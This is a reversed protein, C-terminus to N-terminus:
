RLLRPLKRGCWLEGDRQHLPLRVDVVWDEGEPGAVLTAGLQEARARMGALGSGGADIPVDAHGARSPLLNRVSLRARRPSVSFRVRATAQPAHKAVNALSEQAIRYLGLGTGHALMGPDGDEAYEVPMGALQMQAVLGCIDAAGPLAQTASPGDTLTSVTQRIDAMAQRGVKEADALAADVEAVDFGAGEHEDADRLAHRAGTIHLLTVSLSHAVLDHIERAIREREALTAREREGARAAREATLARMQARLMGGIVFGLLVDVMHVPGGSLKGAEAAVTIAALSLLGAVLGLRVGERAVTEATLLALLAPATDVTLTSTSAGAVPDSLLWATAAVVSAAELWWPVLRGIVLQFVSPWLVLVGTLVLLDVPWVADRLVLAIVVCTLQGLTSILPVWWPYALGHAAINAEIRARLLAPAGRLAGAWRDTRGDTPAAYM